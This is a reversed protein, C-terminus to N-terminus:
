TKGLRTSTSSGGRNSSVGGEVISHTNINFHFGSITVLERAIQAIHQEMRMGIEAVRPDFVEIVGPCFPFSAPILSPSSADLHRSQACKMPDVVHWPRQPLEHHEESAVAASDDQVFEVSIEVPPDIDTTRGTSRSQFSDKRTFRAYREAEDLEDESGDLRVKM